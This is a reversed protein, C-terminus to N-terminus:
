SKRCLYAAYAVIPGKLGKCEDEGEDAEFKHMDSGTVTASRGKQGTTPFGPFRPVNEFM